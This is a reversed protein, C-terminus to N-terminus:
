FGVDPFWGEAVRVFGHRDAEQRVAAQALLRNIPESVRVAFSLIFELSFLHDDGLEQLLVIRLM